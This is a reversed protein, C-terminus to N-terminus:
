DDDSASWWHGSRHELFFFADVGGPPTAAATDTTYVSGSGALIGRSDWFFISAGRDNSYVYIMGDDSLLRKLGPLQVETRGSWGNERAREIARPALLARVPERAQQVVWGASLVAPVLLLLALALGAALSGAFTAFDHKVPDGRRSLYLVLLIIAGIAAVAIAPLGVTIAILFGVFSSLAGVLCLALMVAPPLTM